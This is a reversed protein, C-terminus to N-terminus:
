DEYLYEDEKPLLGGFLGGKGGKKAAAPKPAPAKPAAKKLQSGVRAVQKAAAPRSRQVKAAVGNAGEDVKKQLLSGFAFASKKAEKVPEEVVEEKKPLLSGFNFGGAAKKVEKVPESRAAKRVAPQVQAKARGAVKKAAGRVEEAADEAGEEAKNFLSGFSFSQAGKKSPAAFADLPGLNMQEAKAAVTQVATGASDARARARERAAAARAEIAQMQKAEQELEKKRAEAASAEEAAERAAEQAQARRQAEEEAEQARKEAAAAEEEAAKKAAIVEGYRGDESVASLLDSITKSPAEASSSVEFVKNKAVELDALAGAVVEAVQSKSVKGTLATGEAEVVLNGESEGDPGARVVTYTLGSEALKDLLGKDSVAGGGGFFGSFFGGGGGSSGGKSSVLVFHSSNALKAAELVRLADQNSMKGRPGNEASGLALVVKGANGISEAISDVDTVDYEVINVRKAEERSILEYQVAFALLKDAEEADPVAARVNLGAALVEKAIRVGTQGTAGSVFVTKPDTPKARQVFTQALAAFRQTTGTKGTGTAKQLQTGKKVATGTGRSVKQTGTAKNAGLKFWGTGKPEPEPEPAKKNAKQVATGIKQFFGPESDKARVGQCKVAREHRTPVIVSNLQVKRLGVHCAFTRRGDSISASEFGSKASPVLASSCSTVVAPSLASAM